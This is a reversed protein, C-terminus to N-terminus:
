KFPVEMTEEARLIEAKDQESFSNIEKLIDICYHVASTFKGYDASIIQIMQQNKLKLIVVGDAFSNLTM